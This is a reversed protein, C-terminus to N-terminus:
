APHYAPPFVPVPDAKLKARVPEPGVPKLSDYLFRVVGDQYEARIFSWTVFLGGRVDYQMIEDEQGAEHMAKALDNARDVFVWEPRVGAHWIVFVGSAGALGEEEPDLYSFRHFRGRPTRAWKPDVPPGTWKPQKSHSGFLAMPQPGFIDQDM